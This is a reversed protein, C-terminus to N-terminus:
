ILAIEIFLKESSNLDPVISISIVFGILKFDIISALYRAIFIIM